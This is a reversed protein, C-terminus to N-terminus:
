IHYLVMRDHPRDVFMTPHRTTNTAERDLDDFSILLPLVDDTKGAWRTESQDLAKVIFSKTAVPDSVPGRSKTKLIAHNVPDHISLDQDLDNVNGGV